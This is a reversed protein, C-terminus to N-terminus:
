QIELIKKKQMLPFEIRLVGDSLKVTQDNLDANSYSLDIAVNVNGNWGPKKTKVILNNNDLFAEIDEKSVGAVLIDVVVKDDLLYHKYDNSNTYYYWGTGTNWDWNFSGDQLNALTSNTLKIM